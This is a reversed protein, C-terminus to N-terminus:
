FAPGDYRQPAAPQNPYSTGAPGHKEAGELATEIADELVQQASPQGVCSKRAKVAERRIDSPESDQGLRDHGRIILVRQPKGDIKVLSGYSVAGLETMCNRMAPTIQRTEDSSSLIALVDANTIVDAPWYSVIDEALQQMATKTATVVAQKSRNMPPREGAKFGSIDRKRLFVAVANIFEHDNLLAYLREYDEPARPPKTHVVARWRRDTSDIPLANLHNSFVLWRCSNYESYQRGFKPNVNRVEQNLMERLRNKHRYNSGDGAQIEDVLALVRGSLMGNYPSDLLAHLDVNPAVYGRWVRALVSALWNRGCGTHSAVHLWGYHPLEGPKQEIHALWDLFLEREVEDEILYGVHELFPSVDAKVEWRKAARWINIARRGDPDACVKNAGARFTPAMATMRRPDGRWISANPVAKEAAGDKDTVFTVSEATLSCFEKYKLFMTRSESVYAVMEGEAIWYLSEVMEDVTLCSPFMDGETLGQIRENEGKQLRRRAEDHGTPDAEDAALSTLSYSSELLALEMSHRETHKWLDFGAPLEDALDWGDPVDEPPLIMRVRTAIARVASWVDLMAVTGPQELFPMVLGAKEHREPYVQKDADPWLAIARGALPSWDVYKVAKGGGPWSVVVIKNEGFGHDLFRYRAADCAKEGEVVVVQAGPNAALRELGYIPRPKPFALNRWQCEGTKSSVAWVTPVVEKGGSPMDYRFVYGIPEGDANFYDWRRSAQVSIWQGKVRRWIIDPIMPVNDPIPIIPTWVEEPEAPESAAAPTPVNGSAPLEGLIRKVADRFRLGEFDRVFQIADGDAGCGMCHYRQQNGKGYITFSPTDESHFCCLGFYDKGQKHMQIGYSEVLAVLDTSRASAIIHAPLENRM